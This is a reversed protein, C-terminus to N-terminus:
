RSVASPLRPMSTPMKSCIARTRVTHTTAPPRATSSRWDSVTPSIAAPMATPGASSPSTSGVESISSRAVTPVESSSKTTPSFSSTRM